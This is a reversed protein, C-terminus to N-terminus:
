SVSHPSSSSSPPPTPVQTLHRKLHILFNKIRMNFPLGSFCKCVKPPPHIPIIHQCCYHCKRRLLLLTIRTFLELSNRRKYLSSKKIEGNNYFKGLVTILREKDGKTDGYGVNIWGTWGSGPILYSRRWLRCDFCNVDSVESLRVGDGPTKRRWFVIVRENHNWFPSGGLTGEQIYIAWM